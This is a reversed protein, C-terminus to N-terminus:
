INQGLTLAKQEVSKEVSFASVNADYAQSAGILDSMQQVVDVGNTTAGPPTAEPVVATVEVGQVPGVAGALAAGFSPGPQLVTGMEQYPAGGASVTSNLNALNSAVVDMQLRYATLASETVDMSVYPGM